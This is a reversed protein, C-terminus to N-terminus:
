LKKVLIWDWQPDGGVDFLHEGVRAYGLKGAYLRQARANGEWVGLWVHSRGEARALGEAAAMLATGVGRGHWGEGVYLRQLEVPRPYLARTAETGTIAPEAASSARNVLAFGTITEQEERGGNEDGPSASSSSSDSSSSADDDYAVLTTKAGDALDARIAAVSYAEALYAQLQAPTCGSGTFTATFVAAGLRAIQPADQPTAPRIKINSTTTTTTNNVGSGSESGSKNNNNTTTSNTTTMTTATPGAPSTNSSAM